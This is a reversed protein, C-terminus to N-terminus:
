ITSDSAIQEGSIYIINVNSDDQKFQYNFFYRQQWNNKNNEDFHDLKQTITGSGFSNEDILSTDVKRNELLHSTFGEKRRGGFMPPVAFAVTALA